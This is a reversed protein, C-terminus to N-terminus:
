GNKKRKRLGELLLRFDPIYLVVYFCSALIAGLLSIWVSELFILRWLLMYLTAILIVIAFRMKVVMLKMRCLVLVCVVDSIIYGLLTAIAAGEIGIRPILLLNLVVNAIAGTSLILFNPWTKKIVLFQNGAVQFLMQLLPALFLYPSVIYGGWYEEEFLLHFIVRSLACVFFTSAFSIVGLYEFIKSNTEVQKEEKMTSFAFYQWGGAFATYILQSAHALKAGVAYIGSAGVGILEAIMVRDSSNFVWYVLFNPVLPIGIALLDKLYKLKIESIRFWRRNLAFFVMENVVATILAALPMALLYYGKLLLLICIMYSLMPGLSNMILFVKRKNQMRTPAAVINNTAGVLMTIAAVVIIYGLSSDKLFRGALFDKAAFLLIFMVMSSILLFFLTTSCIERKYSEDDKEFFLRYMADYMGMVAFASCFSVLTNALDSIGFYTSDPMIYTVIPLMVLPIIKGIIGGLGYVLFNEVFLKFKKM